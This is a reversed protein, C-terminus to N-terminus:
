LLARMERAAETLLPLLGHSLLRADGGQADSVVVNLAAVTKGAMNRLPARLDHSISYNFAELEALTKQHAEVEDALRRRGVYLDLFVQVKSRLIETNIPKFLLDVAGSGYGRLATAETEHEATLFIIPIDRTSPHERAYRAVEYGDMGPMQVDLLIMAFEGRLLLRLAENGSGAPVLECDLDGLQAQLAILNAPRDDVM